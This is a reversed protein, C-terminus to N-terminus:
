SHSECCANIGGDEPRRLHWNIRVIGSLQKGADLSIRKPFVEFDDDTTRAAPLNNLGVSVFLQADVTNNFTPTFRCIGKVKEALCNLSFFQRPTHFHFM